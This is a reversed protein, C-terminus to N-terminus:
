DVVHGNVDSINEPRVQDSCYQGVMELVNFRLTPDGEVYVLNDNFLGLCRSMFRQICALSDLDFFNLDFEGLTM